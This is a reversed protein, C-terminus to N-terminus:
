PRKALRVRGPEVVTFGNRLRAGVKAVAEVVAVPKRRRARSAFKVFLVGASLSGRAYVLAGFDRDETILVRGEMFAREIV